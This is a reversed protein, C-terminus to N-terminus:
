SNVDASVKKATPKILRDLKDEIAKLREDFMGLDNKSEAPLNVPDSVLPKYQTTYIRGDAGWKRIQIESMDRKVFVSPNGDMGVDNATVMDFNEVMRGMLNSNGQNQYVPQQYTPQYNYQPYNMQYNPIM